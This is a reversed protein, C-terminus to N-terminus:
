GFTVSQLSIRKQNIKIKKAIHMRKEVRQNLKELFPDNEEPDLITGFDSLM